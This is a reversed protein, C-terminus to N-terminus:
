LNTQTEKLLLEKQLQNLKKIERIIFVGALLFAAGDSVPGAYVVGDIGFLLPLTLLLPVLFVIQRTLSIIIGVRAKGISTFFNATVPQIGNLFILMMFIKLYREAFLFYADSGEGFIGMVERPFLQFVLFILTSFATAATLATIYTQKVRDYKKAGYNFGNIPQCGQATGIVFALFVVNIKSIAGVCALPIESGYISDAGYIKLTNNMVIQVVTMALQNFCAATGLACIKGMLSVDPKFCNKHLKVHKFKKLIYFLAIVTCLFQSLVTAAAAGAIGMDLYYILIPDLIINLVAGSMLCIMSYAPSGDSRILQCAGTTLIQFPIGFCIISMYSSAYPEIKETVGFVSLLQHNFGFALLCLFVGSILMMLLGNGAVEAAEKNKGAGLRLNFNSATGVALLLALATAITVLPFAINTAAMGLEGIGEFNLFGRGIYIQDVINYVAHVLFSLIAPISFKLILKGIKEYGLPNQQVDQMKIVM